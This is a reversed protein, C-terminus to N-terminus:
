FGPCKEGCLMLQYCRTCAPFIGHKSSKLAKRFKVARENNYMERLPGDMINGITFDPYDACFHVDGNYDINVSFWPAACKDRVITTLQSYYIGIKEPKNAPVTIIPYGNDMAHVRELIRAFEEGDIGENFGTVFGKWRTPETDLKEKYVRVQDEGIADTAYTGLNIIHWALNHDRLAEALKDLYQYNMKTVTTVIGVNPLNTKQKAKERNIAEIGAMVKKFSGKGRIKDNVEEFSDLSIFIGGWKDRVIREANEELFTGNTNITFVVKKAMYEALDMFNPYLFPEGGWVYFVNTRKCVEDTLQKYREIPVIKKAEQAIIPKLTGKIGNQGCMICELNCLPTIKFTVLPMLSSKGSSKKYDFWKAM